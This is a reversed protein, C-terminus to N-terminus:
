TLNKVAVNLAVNVVCSTNVGVRAQVKVRYVGKVPSVGKREVLFTFDKPFM